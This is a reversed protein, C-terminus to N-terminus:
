AKKASAGQRCWAKIEAQVALFRADASAARTNKQILQRLEDRLAAAPFNRNPVSSPDSSWVIDYVYVDPDAQPNIATLTADAAKLDGLQLYALAEYFGVDSLYGHRAGKRYAGLFRDYEAVAQRLYDPKQLSYKARSVYYAQHYYRGLYYRAVEATGADTSAAAQALLPPVQGSVDNTEYLFIAKALQPNRPQQQFTPRAHLPFVGGLVM